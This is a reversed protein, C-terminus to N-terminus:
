RRTTFPDSILWEGATRKLKLYRRGVGVTARRGRLRVKSETLQGRSSKIRALEDKGALDLAKDVGGECDNVGLPALQVVLKRKGDGTMLDCVAGGDGDLVATQYRKVVEVVEAREDAPKEDDGGCGALLLAGITGSLILTQRLSRPWGM